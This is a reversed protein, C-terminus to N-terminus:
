ERELKRVDHALAEPSLQEQEFLVREAGTRDLLIVGAYSSFAAAGASAPQVHYARWLPQLQARTGGLYLARHALSVQALFRRVNAPTDVAPEASVILVPVPRALEDLAGRIQEAILVCASGCSPYLFSLIVVRGRYQSLSVRAGDQDTLVFDHPAEGAPLAAGDFGSLSDSAATTRAPASGGCSCLGLALACAGLLALAPLRLLPKALVAELTRSAKLRSGV